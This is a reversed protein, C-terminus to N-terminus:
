DRHLGICLFTGCIVKKDTFSLNLGSIYLPYRLDFYTLLM